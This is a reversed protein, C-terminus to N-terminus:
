GPMVALALDHFSKKTGSPDLVWSDGYAKLAERDAKADDIRGQALRAQMRGLLAKAATRGQEKGNFVADITSEPYERLLRTFTQEADNVLRMRLYTAGVNFLADDALPGRPAADVADTFLAIADFLYGQMAREVGESFLSEPTRARSKARARVGAAGAKPSVSKRSSAGRAGARSPRGSRAVANAKASEGRGAGGRKAAARKSAVAGSTSRTTTRKAAARKTAVPKAKAAKSQKRNTKRPM